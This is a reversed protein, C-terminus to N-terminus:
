LVPASIDTVFIYRDNRYELDFRSMEKLCLKAEQVGHGASTGQRVREAAAKADAANAMSNMIRIHVRRSKLKVSITVGEEDISNKVANELLRALGHLLFAPDYNFFLDGQGSLASDLKINPKIPNDYALMVIRLANELDNATQQQPEYDRNSFKVAAHALIELKKVKENIEGLWGRVTKMRQKALALQGALDDGPLRFPEDLKNRTLAIAHFLHEAPGIFGHDKANQTQEFVHDAALREARFRALANSLTLHRSATVIPRESDVIPRKSDGVALLYLYGMAKEDRDSRRLPLCTWLPSPAAGPIRDSFVIEIDSVIEKVPSDAPGLESEVAILEGPSAKFCSVTVAGRAAIGRAVRASVRGPFFSHSAPFFGPAHCLTLLDPDIAWNLKVEGSEVVSGSSNTRWKVLMETPGPKSVYLHKLDADKSPIGLEMGTAEKIESQQCLDLGTSPFDEWKKTCVLHQLVEPLGPDYVILNAFRSEEDTGTEVFSDIRPAWIRLWFTVLAHPLDPNKEPALDVALAFVSSWTDNLAKSRQDSEAKTLINEDIMRRWIYSFSFRMLEDQPSKTADASSRSAIFQGVCWDTLMRVADVTQKYLDPFRSSAIERMDRDVLKLFGGLHSDLEAKHSSLIEYLRVGASERGIPLDCNFRLCGMVIGSSNAPNERFVLPVILDALRFERNKSAGSISFLRLAADIRAHIPSGPPPLLEPCPQPHKTTSPYYADMAEIRSPVGSEQLEWRCDGRDSRSEVDRALVQMRQVILNQRSDPMCSLLALSSWLRQVFCDENINCEVPEAISKFTLTALYGALNGRSLDVIPSKTEPHSQMSSESDQQLPSNARAFRALMDMDIASALNAGFKEYVQQMAKLFSNRAQYKSGNKCEEFFLGPIPHSVFFYGALEQSKFLYLPFGAVSRNGLILDETAARGRLDLWADFVAVVGDTGPIKNREDFLHRMWNVAGVRRPVHLSQRVLEVQDQHLLSSRIFAGHFDESGPHFSLVVYQLGCLITNRATEADPNLTLKAINCPEPCIEAKHCAPQEDHLESPSLALSCWEQYARHVSGGYRSLIHPLDDAIEKLWPVRKDALESKIQNVVSDVSPWGHRAAVPHVAQGDDNADFSDM